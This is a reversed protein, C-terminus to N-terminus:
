SVRTPQSAGRSCLNTVREFSCSNSGLELSQGDFSWRGTISVRRCVGVPCTRGVQRAVPCAICQDSVIKRVQSAVYEFAVLNMGDRLSSIFCVDSVRYLAVLETFNLSQDLYHVPIYGLGGRRGNIKGVIEHVASKLRQYEPVVSRSPVALQVLVVRDAWEPYLELFRDFANLKHPIGKMYDLRDVGLIVQVCSVFVVRVM